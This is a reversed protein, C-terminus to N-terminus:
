LARGRRRPQKRAGPRACGSPTLYLKGDRILRTLRSEDGPFLQPVSPRHYPGLFGFLDFDLGHADERQPRVNSSQAQTIQAAPANPAGEHPDLPTVAPPRLQEAQGNPSIPGPPVTRQNPVPSLAPLPLNPPLAPTPSPNGQQSPVTGPAPSAGPPLAPSPVPVTSPAPQELPAQQLSPQGTQAPTATPGPTQAAVSAALTLSVASLARLTPAFARHGDHRRQSARYFVSSRWSM